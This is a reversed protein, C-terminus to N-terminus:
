YWAQISGATTDTARIRKVRIPLLIGAPVGVTTAITGDINMISLNGASGVWVARTIELDTDDNPTIDVLRVAPGTDLYGSM